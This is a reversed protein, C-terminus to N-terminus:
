QPCEGNSHTATSGFRLQYELATVFSCAMAHQIGVDRLPHKNVQGLWFNYGGDDPDRRLYGFYEMVVFSENYVADIMAQSDAISRLALGRDQSQSSGGNYATLFTSMQSSLDPGGSNKITMLVANIFTPGDQSLPYTSVFAPRQVFSVAFDTKSQDLNAGGVVQSRDPTFQAYTPRLGTASKYLRYVYAGSDQFEAEFFFADAVAIRENNTCATDAGCNDIQGTWYTLGSSDPPRSLFDFYQQRVFFEHGDLPNITPTGRKYVRVYDVAMKQPFVTTGDPNGPFGGGVAVNLLIFFPHDYVWTHGNLDAPTRTEYLTSDVYWRIVNPEWEVAYLHYADAFRGSSLDDFATIGNAGSYGPGHITGHVRSPERGVNEMIDVEGCTPWSVQDINSGLMWFAPWLGQGYPIQINAEFRGETQAFVGETKLRASTYNRQINDSGTYNENLASIVLSGNEVDANQLRNTYSELENNGWGNGGIDFTWKLPDVGSGTPGNFEDSWVVQWGSSQAQTPAAFEPSGYPGIILLVLALSVLAGFCSRQMGRPMVIPNRMAMERPVTKSSKELPSGTV